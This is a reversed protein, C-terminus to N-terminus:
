SIMYGEAIGTPGQYCPGEGDPHIVDLGGQAGCAFSFYFGVGDGSPRCSSEYHNLTYKGADKCAGAIAADLQFSEVALYPKRYEKKM